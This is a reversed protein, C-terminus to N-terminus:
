GKQQTHRKGDSAQSWSRSFVVPNNVNVLRVPLAVLLRLLVRRCAFVNVHNRKSQKEEKERMTDM